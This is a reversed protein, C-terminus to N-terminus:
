PQGGATFKVDLRQGSQVTVQRKDDKKPDDPCKLSVVHGGAAITKASIPPFGLDQGDIVIKCTELSAFVNITGTGPMTWEQNGGRQFDVPVTSALLIDANRVTVASGPQVRVEHHTNAQSIVKGGELVEFPTAGNLTLNVPGAPREFKYTKGGKTLDGESVSATITAYGSLQLELSRTSKGAFSVKDPTVKGTDSGNVLIKAGTPNSEVFFDGAAAPAGARGAGAAATTAAPAPTAAPTEGGGRTAFYAVAGGVIVVAAAIGIIM